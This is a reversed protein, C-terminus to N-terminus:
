SSQSMRFGLTRLLESIISTNVTSFFDDARVGFKQYSNAFYDALMYHCHLSREM